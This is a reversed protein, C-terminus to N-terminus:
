QAGEQNMAAAKELWPLLKVKRTVVGPTGTPKGDEGFTMRARGDIAQLWFGSTTGLIRRAFFRYLRGGVNAVPMDPCAKMLQQIEPQDNGEADTAIDWVVLFVGPEDNEGREKLELTARLQADVPLLDPFTKDDRLWTTPIEFPLHALDHLQAAPLANNANAVFTALDAALRTIQQPLRGDFWRGKVNAFLPVNADLTKRLRDLRALYDVGTESDDPKVDIKLLHPTLIAAYTKAAQENFHTIDDVFKGWEEKKLRARDVSEERLLLAIAASFKPQTDVNTVTIRRTSDPLKEADYRPGRARVLVPHPAGELNV